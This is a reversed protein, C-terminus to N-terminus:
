TRESKKRRIIGIVIMANSFAFVLSAIGLLIWLLVDAAGGSKEPGEPETPAETAETAETREESPRTPAETEPEEIKVSFPNSYLYYNGYHEGNVTLEAKYRWLALMETGAADQEVTILEASDLVVTEGGQTRGQPKAAEAGPAVTLDESLIEVVYDSAAWPQDVTMGHVGLLYDHAFLDAMSGIEYTWPWVTLGRHRGALAVSEGYGVCAPNYTANWRDLVSYLIKLALETGEERAMEEYSGYSMGYSEDWISLLSGVSIEPYEKFMQDMIGTSFTITYVQDWADYEDVLAKLASLVAPDNTKIETDHVVNKGKFEELYERFTPIRYVYREEEGFLKGGFLKGYTPDDKSVENKVPIGFNESDWNFELAKLEELTLGSAETDNLGFFPGLGSEHLIFLEGDKTLQIDNEIADAGEEFAGKASELTNEAYNSPDGRHGLIRPIRLLTPADDRFLEMAHFAAEYDDTLVGNVGNTYLTLLTRLDSPAKVWVAACIGQLTKINERTACEPSLLVIKGHAGNVSLAMEALAKRDAEKVSTFDLIAKVHLLEAVDKVLEKNAASSVVFCDELGSKELWSKLAKAEAENQFCFAPIMTPSTARVYDDISGSLIGGNRDYVRLAEDLWVFAVQPRQEKGATGVATGDARWAVTSSMAWSTDPEYVEAYRVPIERTEEEGCLTCTHTKEGKETTTSEKLIKWEGFVHAEPDAPLFSIIMRGCNACIFSETGDSVCTAEHIEEHEYDNLHEARSYVGLFIRGGELFAVDTWGNEDTTGWLPEEALEYGERLRLEVFATYTGDGECVGTFPEFTQGKYRTVWKSMCVEVADELEEDEAYAYAEIEPDSGEETIELGCYPRSMSIVIRTVTVPEDARVPRLSFFGGALLILVLLVSCIRRHTM